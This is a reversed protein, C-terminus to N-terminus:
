KIFKSFVANFEYYNTDFSIMDDFIIPNGLTDTRTYTIGDTSTYQVRSYDKYNTFRATSASIMAQLRSAGGTWYGSLTSTIPTDLTVIDAFEVYRKKM